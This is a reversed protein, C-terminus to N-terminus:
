PVTAIEPAGARAQLWEVMREAPMARAFLWGQGYECGLSRVIDVQDETELGEAVTRLSLSDGLAVIARALAQDTGGGAIGSVFSRDIKLVDIPFRKLYSLSSYGTGFDDLALRVGLAKLAEIRALSAVADSMLVTETIELILSAAPLGSAVLAERVEEVVGAEQLQRASLNVSVTIPAGDVQQLVRGQRCAERLVWSGLPLILGTEEALPIFTAPSIPGRQPHEWRLLAEVGAVDGSALAVIPQFHLSLEERSVARRLDAVLELRDVADSHMSADFRVWRGRGRAKAQYMAVDADRVLTDATAGPTARAIGISANVFVERADLTFPARMARLVRDSVLALTAEDEVHELLVAFEDGGLRAVTDSGRTAALLLDSVMCLLRDGASHGLSDNITKFGDLDIYLVAAGGRSNGAAIAHGVRELFRTRNVLGTLADHYAQHSLEDELRRRETVDLALGLTGLIDGFDSRLSEVHVDYVRDRWVAVTTEAGGALAREHLAVLSGDETAVEGFVEGISRGNAQDPAMGLPALGAGRSSTLRLDRDATWLIAPMQEIYLRLRTEHERVAARARRRRRGYLWMAVAVTAAMGLVAAIALAETRLRGRADAFAESADIARVIGWDVEELHRTSAIVPRGRRDAFMGTSDTGALAYRWMTPAVDARVQVGLGEDSPYPSPNLVAVHDNRREVLKTRVTRASGIDALLLPFLTRSPDSAAVLATTTGPVLTAVIARTARTETSPGRIRETRQMAAAVAVAREDEDLPAARVTAAITRGATDIVWLGALGHRLRLAELETALLDPEMNGASGGEMEHALDRVIRRAIERAVTRQDYAWREVVLATLAVSGQLQDQWRRQATERLADYRRKGGEVVLIVAAACAVILATRAM